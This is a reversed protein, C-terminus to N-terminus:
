KGRKSAIVSSLKASSKAGFLRVDIECEEILTLIIQKLAAHEAVDLAMDNLVNMDESKSTSTGWIERTFLTVGDFKLEIAGVPKNGTSVASTNGETQQAARMEKITAM